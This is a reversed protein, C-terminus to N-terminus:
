YIIRSILSKYDKLQRKSRYKLMNSWATNRCGRENM